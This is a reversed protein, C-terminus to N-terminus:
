CPHPAMTASNLRRLGTLAAGARGQTKLILSGEAEGTQQSLGSTPGGRVLLAEHRLIFAHHDYVAVLALQSGPTPRV